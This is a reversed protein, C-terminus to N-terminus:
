KKKKKQENRPKQIKALCIKDDNSIDRRDHDLM